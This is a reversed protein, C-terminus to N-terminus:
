LMPNIKFIKSTENHLMYMLTQQYNEQYEKEAEKEM